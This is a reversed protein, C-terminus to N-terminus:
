KFIEALECIQTEEQVVPIYGSVDISGELQTKHLLGQAVQVVCIEQKVQRGPKKKEPLVEQRVCHGLSVVIALVTLWLHSFQTPIQLVQAPLTFL